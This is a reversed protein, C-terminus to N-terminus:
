SCYIITPGEPSATLWREFGKKRALMDLGEDCTFHIEAAGPDEGFLTRSHYLLEYFDAVGLPVTGVGTGIDLAVISDPLQDREFLDLLVLQVKHLNKPLYTLAYVLSEMGCYQVLQQNKYAQHMKRAIDRLNSINAKRAASANSESEWFKGLTEGEGSDPLRYAEAVERMAKELAFPFFARNGPAIINRMFRAIQRRKEINM